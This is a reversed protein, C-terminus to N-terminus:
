ASVETIKISAGPHNRWAESHAALYAMRWSTFLETTYALGRSDHVEATYM